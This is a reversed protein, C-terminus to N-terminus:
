PSKAVTDPRLESLTREPHSCVKELLAELDELTRQLVAIDFFDPNYQARGTLGTSRDSFEMYLPWRSGGGGVDMYTQRWGAPLSALDPSLSIAIHFFPNGGPKRKLRLKDAVHELPVDDHTLAGSIVDTAEQLLDLFRADPKVRMRLAVPNLFYGLLSEVESRKRGCPSVTGVIIDDQGTYVHLLASFGALLISFLTVGRQRGLKRLANTLDAPWVFPHIAGRQTLEPSHLFAPPWGLPPLDGGLQKEWYTIQAELAQRRQWFAYDAFQIPLEPLPSPRDASFAEYLETLELPFIRFVSIGDVVSQHASMYLRFERDDLQVLLARLLPGNQIDFALSAQESAFRAAAAEREASPLSRLDAVPIPFTKAFPHIDQLIQGDKMEYSTRWIEHRRLIEALCRELVPLDLLGTRHMTFCEVFAPPTDELNEAQRLVQEQSLSLPVLVGPPRPGIEDMSGSRLVGQRLYKELLKRKSESFQSSQPM